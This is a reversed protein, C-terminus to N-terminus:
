PKKRWEEIYKPYTEPWSICDFIWCDGISFCESSTYVFGLQKMHTQPHPAKLELALGAGIMDYRFRRVALQTAPTPDIPEPLDPRNGCFRCVSVVEQLKLLAPKLRSIEDTLRDNDETLGNLVNHCVALKASQSENEQELQGQKDILTLIRIMVRSPDSSFDEPIMAHLAYFKERLDLDAATMVIIEAAQQKWLAITEESPYQFVHPKYDYYAMDAPDNHRDERAGCYICRRVGEAREMDRNYEWIERETRIQLGESM